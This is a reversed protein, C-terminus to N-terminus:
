GGIPLSPNIGFFIFVWFTAIVHVMVINVLLSRACAKGVGAPGGSAFYGYFCSVIVIFMAMSGMNLYAQLNDTLNQSAWNFHTFTGPATAHYVTVAQFYSGFYGGLLGVTVALPVYILSGILRTGVVYSMPNVGEVEFADLEDQIRMAGIEAVMGCGVKASFVYGFMIPVAARPMVIGAFVGTFDQAGVAKELFYAFVVVTMGIFLCMAFIIITSGRILIAAQRLVESLYRPVRGLGKISNGFFEALDGIEQFGTGLGGSRVKKVEAPPPPPISYPSTGENFASSEM